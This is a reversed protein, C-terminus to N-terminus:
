NDKHTPKLTSLKLLTEKEQNIISMCEYLYNIDLQFRQQRSNEM